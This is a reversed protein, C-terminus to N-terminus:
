SEGALITDGDGRIYYFGREWAEHAPTGESYPNDFETAEAKKGAAVGEDYARNGKVNAEGSTSQGCSSM